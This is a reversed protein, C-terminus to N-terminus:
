PAPFINDISQRILAELQLKLGAEFLRENDGDVFPFDIPKLVGEDVLNIIVPVLNDALASLESHQALPVTKGAQEDFILDTGKDLGFQLAKIIAGNAPLLNLLASGVTDIGEHLTHKTDDNM